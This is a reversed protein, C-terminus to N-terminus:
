GAGPRPNAASSHRFRLPMERERPRDISQDAPKPEAHM